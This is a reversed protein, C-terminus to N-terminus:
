MKLIPPPQIPAPTPIPQATVAPIATPAPAAAGADATGQSVGRMKEDHVSQLVASTPTAPATACVAERNAANPDSPVTTAAQAIWKKYERIIETYRWFLDNKVRTIAAFFCRSPM